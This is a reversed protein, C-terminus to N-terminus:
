QFGYAARWDLGASTTTKPIYELGVPGSFDVEALLQFFKQFDIRGTGPEHRDPWDAVHVHRMCRHHAAVFAIPDVGANMAHFADFLMYLNPADVETMARLALDPHDIFYNAITAVGIPEVFVSLGAATAVECAHTLNELYVSWARKWDADGPLVGAMVHVYPCGIDRAYGVGTEVSARFDDERGTLCAFGKEGRELDGAPLGIQSFALGNDRCLEVVRSAPLAYPGPHEVISFGAKRAAEFRRELPMENFMYGLHASLKLM